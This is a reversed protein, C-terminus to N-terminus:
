GYGAPPGDARGPAGPAAGARDCRSGSRRSRSWRQAEGLDADPGIPLAEQNQRMREAARARRSRGSRRALRRDAHDARHTPLLARLRDQGQEQPEALLTAQRRAEHEAARLRLHARRPLAAAELHDIGARPGGIEGREVAAVHHDQVVLALAVLIPRAPDRRVRQRAARGHDARVEGQHALLQARGRRDARHEAARVLQRRRGQLRQRQSRGERRREGGMPLRAVRARERAPEVPEDGLHESCAGGAAAPALRDDSGGRDLLGTRLVVVAPHDILEARDPRLSSRAGGRSTPRSSACCARCCSRRSRGSGTATCRGAAPRDPHLGRGGGDGLGHRARRLAARLDAGPDPQAVTGSMVVLLLARDLGHPVLWQSVLAANLVILPIILAMIRLVAVAPQYEPLGFLLDVLWPALLGIAVGFAIGVATMLLISLSAMARAQDPSHEVLHSLRPLLAVNIPQMLWAAPRCLKEGAAFFAVQIPGGLLLLLFSNGATHMLVSIRMVFMSFGLRLTQAILELDLRGPRVQRLMLAYGAASALLAAGAYAALVIWGDGPGRVFVFIAITALVKAGVGITAILPIREQGVFFWLPYLGQLIAFALAAWLLLPQDQFEPVTLRVVVAALAVM